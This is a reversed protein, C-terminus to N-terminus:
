GRTLCLARANMQTLITRAFSGTHLQLSAQKVSLRDRKTDRHSYVASGYVNFLEAACRTHVLRSRSPRQLAHTHPDPGTVPVHCTDTSIQRQDLDM